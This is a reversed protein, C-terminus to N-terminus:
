DVVGPTQQWAGPVGAIVMELREYQDCDSGCLKELNSLEALALDKRGAQVYGEGLYERTNLSSPDIALAQKYYDIGEDVQGLKRKSYGIYTLALANKQDKVYSLVDLAAEYHGWLALAEGQAVLEKDDLLSSSARVCVGKQQDYVYGKNCTVPAQGGGGGGAAFTATPAAAGAIVLLAAAGLARIFIKRFTHTSM